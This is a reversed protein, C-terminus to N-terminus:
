TWFRVILATAVILVVLSLPAGFRAYDFFQYGGPGMVLTNSQHGIPTLFDCSAGIAVAMLMADISVGSAAGVQAAIPGMILVAAANNLFPTVLMTAGLVAAVIITTSQGHVAAAVWGAITEGAGLDSFATAVPILAALMLVISWDIDRYAHQNLRGLLALAAIAALLAIQLPALNFAAAAIAAALAAIPRWDAKARTLELPREALPLLAFREIIDPKASEQAQLLVVDGAQLRISDLREVIARGGRSVAVLAAGARSLRARADPALVLPTREQVVCEFLAAELLDDEAGGVLELDHTELAAQVLPARGELQVIDGTRLPRWDGPAAFVMGQRDIAHVSLTEGDANPARVDGVTLPKERERVRVEFLYDSVRFLLQEGKSPLRRPIARLLVLMAAVGALATLAGVPAFDFMRFPADGYDARLRAIIVNPPTGILTALGGLLSAFAMPMLVRSPSISATRCAALAAPMLLALAGVNNMFASAIACLLSFTASLAFETVLLRRMPHLAWRLVGSRAIAASLAMVAAVTVVVPDAFGSFANQPAVFGFSVATLLMLIAVLDHRMRGTAFLSLGGLLILAIGLSGGTM